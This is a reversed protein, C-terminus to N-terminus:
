YKKSGKKRDDFFNSLVRRGVLAQGDFPNSHAHPNTNANERVDDEEGRGEDEGEEADDAHPNTNTNERADDEKGEGEDEGEEAVVVHPNTNANERADDEEGRGGDERATWLDGLTDNTNLNDYHNGSFVVKIVPGNPNGIVYQLYFITDHPDETAYVAIAKNHLESFAIMETPGAWPDGFLSIAHTNTGRLYNCYNCPGNGQLMTTEGITTDHYKQYWNDEVWKIIEGKLKQM